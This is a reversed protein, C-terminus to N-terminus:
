RLGSRGGNRVTLNSYVDSSDLTGVNMSRVRQPVVDVRTWRGNGVVGVVRLWRMEAVRIRRCGGDSGARPLGQGVNLWTLSSGVVSVSLVGRRVEYNEATGGLTALLPGLIIAM